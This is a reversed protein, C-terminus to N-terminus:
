PIDGGRTNIIKYEELKVSEIVPLLKTIKIKLQINNGPHQITTKPINKSLSGNGGKRQFSICNGINFGGKTFTIDVPLKQLVDKMHYIRVISTDRDYLVLIERNPNDSFGWKLIYKANKRFFEGWKVQQEESFLPNKTNRSKAVVINELERREQLGLSFDECFKSVSTRRLQNFGVKYGKINADIYHGCTFNIRVDSKEGYIGGGATNELDGRINFRERIKEIVTPQDVISRKILQEIDRGIFANKNKM